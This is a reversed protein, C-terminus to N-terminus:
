QLASVASDSGILASIINILRISSPLSNLVKTEGITHALAKRQTLWHIEPLLLSGPPDSHTETFVSKLLALNRRRPYKVLSARHDM